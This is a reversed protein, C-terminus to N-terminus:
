PRAGFRGRLFDFIGALSARWQGTMKSRLLYPTTQFIFEFLFYLFFVPFIGFPAWQSVFLLRNRTRYYYFDPSEMGLSSSAKHWARSRPTYWGKYGARYFRITWDPDEWYVFYRPDLLGAKRIAAVRFLSFGGPFYEAEGERDYSGDDEVNQHFGHFQGRLWDFRAGGAFWIKNTGHYYVKPAVIGLSPDAEAVKVLETLTSPEVCGDNAIILLYDANAELAFRVYGNIGEAAGLNKANRVLHAQPFAARVAEETGDTSGNDVVVIEYNPYELRVLSALCEMVHAKQNWTLTGVVVKPAM